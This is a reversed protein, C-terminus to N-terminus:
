RRNLLLRVPMLSPVVPEVGKVQDNSGSPRITISKKFSADSPLRDKMERDLREVKTVCAPMSLKEAVKGVSVWTSVCTVM